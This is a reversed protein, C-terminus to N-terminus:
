VFRYDDTDCCDYYIFIVKILRQLSSSNSNTRVVIEGWKNSCDVNSRKLEKSIIVWNIMDNPLKTELQTNVMQKLKEV